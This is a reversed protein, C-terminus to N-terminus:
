YDKPRRTQRYCYHNVLEGDTRVLSVCDQKGVMMPGHLIGPPRWFYCGEDKIGPWHAALMEGELTFSEEMCDHYEIRREIWGASCKILRSYAKTIPDRWLLKIFLGPLPGKVFPIEWEMKEVDKFIVEAHGESTNGLDGMWYIETDEDVQIEPFAFGAPIRMYCGKKMAQEGIRLAGKTIYLEQDKQPLWREFVEDKNLAVLATFDHSIEDFSFYKYYATPGGDQFTGKTWPIDDKHVFETWVRM